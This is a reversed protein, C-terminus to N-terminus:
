KVGRESIKLYSAKAVRNWEDRDSIYHLKSGVKKLKRFDKIPRRACDACLFKPRGHLIKLSVTKLKTCSSCVSLM